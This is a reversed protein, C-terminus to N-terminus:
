RATGTTEWRSLPSIEATSDSLAITPSMSAWCSTASAKGARPAGLASWSRSWTVGSAVIPEPRSWATWAAIAAGPRAQVSVTAPPDRVVM